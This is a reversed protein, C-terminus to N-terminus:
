ITQRSQLCMFTTQQYLALFQFSFRFTGYYLCVLFVLAISRHITWSMKKWTELRWLILFVYMIQNMFGNYRILGMVNSYFGIIQFQSNRCFYTVEIKKMHCIETPMNQVIIRYNQIKIRSRHDKHDFTTKFSGTM